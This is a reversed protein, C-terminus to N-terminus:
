RTSDAHHHRKHWARKMTILSYTLGRNTMSGIMKILLDETRIQRVKREERIQPLYILSVSLRLVTSLTFVLHYPSTLAPSFHLIAAGTFSGLLTAMGGLVTSYAVYATRNRSKTADYVFSFVSLEVCGWVIGAYVQAACLWWVDDSFVWLISSFPMFLGGLGLMRRGGFRDILRGLLPMLLLKTLIPITCILTYKSYSLNLEKLMYASFFPASLFVAFNMLIQWKLFNGYNSDRVRSFFVSPSLHATESSQQPPDTKRSLFVASLVRMLFALLFLCAYGAMERNANSFFHLLSGAIYFGLLTTLGNIRNRRAFYRAREDEHLLDGMWSNWVPGIVAGAVTYLAVILLFMEVAFDTLYFCLIMPPYLLAQLIAGAVTMRKRSHFWNLVKVSLLQCISGLTQPIAGLVGLQWDSAKLMVAFPAFFSEGFGVMISYFAGDWLSYRLSKRTAESNDEM